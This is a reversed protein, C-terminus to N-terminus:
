NLQTSNPNPKSLLWIVVGRDKRNTLYRWISVSLWAICKSIELYICYTVMSIELVGLYKVWHFIELEIQESKYSNSKDHKEAQINQIIMNWLLSYGKRMDYQNESRLGILTQPQRWQDDENKLYDKKWSKELKPTTELKFNNKKM